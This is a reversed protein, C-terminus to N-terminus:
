LIWTELRQLKDSTMALARLAIVRSGALSKFKRELETLKSHCPTRLLLYSRPYKGIDALREKRGRGSHNTQWPKLRHIPTLDVHAFEFGELESCKEDGCGECKGGFKKILNERQKKALRNRDNTM